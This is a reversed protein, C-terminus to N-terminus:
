MLEKVVYHTLWLVALGTVLSLSYDLAPNDAMLSAGLVDRLGWIGRWVEVVAFIIVVAFIVQHQSKLTLIKRFM